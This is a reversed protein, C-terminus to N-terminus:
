GEAQWYILTMEGEPGAEVYKATLPLGVTLHDLPVGSLKGIMRIKPSGELEVVGVAYPTDGHGKATARGVVTWSFLKGRAAREVWSTEFSGCAPCRFRPPWRQLGCAACCQIELRHESAAKWFPAFLPAELDPVPIEKTNDSM